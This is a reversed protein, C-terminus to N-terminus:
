KSDQKPEIFIFYIMMLVTGIFVYSDALNFVSFNILRFDIYDIVYVRFLRDILNGVGGSVILLVSWFFLNNNINSRFLYWIIFILIALTILLLFIRQNQLIGFAAGYNKVFTLHLVSPIVALTEYQSLIRDALFKIVQDLLVLVTIVLFLMYKMMNSKEMHKM